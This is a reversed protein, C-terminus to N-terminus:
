EWCKDLDVNVQAISSVEIGSAQVPTSVAEEASGTAAFSYKHTPASNSQPDVVISTIWKVCLNLQGAIANAQDIGNQVALLKVSKLAKAYNEDTAKFSISNLNDAGNQISSDIARGADILKTDFSVVAQSSFGLLISPTTSYNYVGSLSLSDTNVKTANLAALVGFLTKLTKATAGQADIATSSQSDVSVVIHACDAPITSSASGVLSLATKTAAVSTTFALTFAFLLTSQILHM